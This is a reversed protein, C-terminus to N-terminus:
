FSHNDYIQREVIQTEAPTLAFVKGDLYATLEEIEGGEAPYCDEPPGYTKAPYFRTLSYEVDIDIQDEGREITCIAICM